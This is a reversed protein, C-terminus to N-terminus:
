FCGAPCNCQRFDPELRFVKLGPSLKSETEWAWNELLAILRRIWKSIWETTEWFLSVCCLGWFGIIRVIPVGGLITCRIAPSGM